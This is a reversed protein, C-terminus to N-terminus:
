MPSELEIPLWQGNTGFPEYGELVSRLCAADLARAAIRSTAAHIRSKAM